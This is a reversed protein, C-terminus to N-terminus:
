AHDWHFLLRAQEWFAYRVADSPDKADFDATFAPRGAIVRMKGGRFEEGTSNTIAMPLIMDVAPFFLRFGGEVFPNHSHNFPNRGGVAFLLVHDPKTKLDRNFGLIGKLSSRDSEDFFLVRLVNAQDQAADAMRVIPVNKDFDNRAVIWARGAEGNFIRDLPSYPVAAGFAVQDLTGRHTPLILVRPMRGMRSKFDAAMQACLTEAGPAFEFVPDIDLRRLISGFCHSRMASYFEPNNWGLRKGAPTEYIHTLPHSYGRQTALSVHDTAHFATQDARWDVSVRYLAPWFRSWTKPDAKSYFAPPLDDISLFLPPLERSEDRARLISMARCAVTLEDYARVATLQRMRFRWQGPKPAIADHYPAIAGSFPGDLAIQAHVPLLANAAEIYRRAATLLNRQGRNYDPGAAFAPRGLKSKEGTEAAQAHLALLKGLAKEFDELLSVPQESKPYVLLLSGKPGEFAERKESKATGILHRSVGHKLLAAQAQVLRLVSSAVLLRLDWKYTISYYDDWHRQIQGEPDASARTLQAERRLIANRAGELHKIREGAVHRYEFQWVRILAELHRDASLHFGEGRFLALMEDPKRYLSHPELPSPTLGAAWRSSYQTAESM